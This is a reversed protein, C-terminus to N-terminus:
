RPTSPKERSKCALGSRSGGTRAEAPQVETTRRRLRTRAPSTLRSCGRHQPKFRTADEITGISM